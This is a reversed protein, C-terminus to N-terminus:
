VMPKVGKGSHGNSRWMSTIRASRVILWTLGFLALFLAAALWRQYVTSSYVDGDGVPVTAIPAIPLGYREAMDKIGIMQIAPIGNRLFYGMVTEVAYARA